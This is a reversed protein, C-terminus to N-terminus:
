IWIFGWASQIRKEMISRKNTNSGKMNVKPGYYYLRWSLNWVVKCQLILRWIIDWKCGLHTEFVALKGWKIDWHLINVDKCYKGTLRSNGTSKCQKIDEGKRRTETGYRMRHIGLGTQPINLPDVTCKSLQSSSVKLIRSVPPGCSAPLTRRQCDQNPFVECATEQSSPLSQEKPFRGGLWSGTPQGRHLLIIRWFFAASTQKPIM